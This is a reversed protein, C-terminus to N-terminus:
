AKSSHKRWLNWVFAGILVLPVLELLEYAGSFGTLNAESDTVNDAIIPILSTFFLLGIVVSIIDMQAGDAERDDLGERLAVLSARKSKESLEM